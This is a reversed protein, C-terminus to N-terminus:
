ANKIIVNGLVHTFDKCADCAEELGDYIEKWKLVLISDRCEQKFLDAIMTNYLSDGQNELDSVRVISEQTAKLNAPSLTWILSTAKDIEGTMAVLIDAFQVLAEPAESLEFLVLFQTVEDIHDLINDLDSALQRIDERDLPTIFTKNLAEFIQRTIQDGEHEKARLEVGKVRRTELRDSRALDAFIRAAQHLNASGKALLARYQEDKPMLSRIISDLNM